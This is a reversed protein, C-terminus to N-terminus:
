EENLSKLHETFIGLSNGELIQQFREFDWTANGLIDRDTLGDLVDRKFEAWNKKAEELELTVKVKLNFMKLKTEIAKTIEEEKQEVLSYRTSANDDYKSVLKTFEDFRKQAAEFANEDSEGM